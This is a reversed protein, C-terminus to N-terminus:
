RPAQGHGHNQFIRRSGTAADLARGEEGAVRGRGFAHQVQARQHEHARGVRDAHLVAGNPKRSRHTNAGSAGSRQHRDDKNRGPERQDGGREQRPGNVPRHPLVATDLKGTAIREAKHLDGSVVADFTRLVKLHFAASIWYAYAYVMEKAVYAGQNYGGRKVSVPIGTDSLLQALDKAQQTELWYSPGQSKAEGAAKHFDNLSYRGEADQHIDTNAIVLKM